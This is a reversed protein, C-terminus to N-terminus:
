LIAEMKKKHAYLIIPVTGLASPTFLKKAAYGGFESWHSTYVFLRETETVKNRYLNLKRYGNKYAIKKHVHGMIYIDAETGLALMEMNNLASGPRKGGGSGHTIYVSYCQRKNSGKHRSGFTIKLIAEDEVYANGKNFYEALDETPRMDTDKSTRAEHNGEVFVLIRDAIPKLETKLWKKQQSPPMSENYVNSVSSKIANNMLDGGCLVYRNPQAQVYEIFEKFYNLKMKSDGVHLDALPLLEISDFERSLNCEIIKM